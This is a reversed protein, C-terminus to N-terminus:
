QATEEILDGDGDYTLDYVVSDRVTEGDDEFWEVTREPYEPGDGEPGLTSEMWKTGDHRRYIITRFIDDDDKNSREVKLRHPVSDRLKELEDRFGEPELDTFDGEGGM